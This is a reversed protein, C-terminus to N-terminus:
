EVLVKTVIILHAPHPSFSAELNSHGLQLFHAPRRRNPFFSISPETDLPRVEAVLVAELLVTLQCTCECKVLQYNPTRKIDM